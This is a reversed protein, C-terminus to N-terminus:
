TSARGDPDIGGVVRNGGNMIQLFSLYGDPLDFTGKTVKVSECHPGALYVVQSLQNVTAIKLADATFTIQTM